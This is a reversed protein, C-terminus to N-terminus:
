IGLNTANIGPISALTAYGAATPTFVASSPVASQGVPNYEGDFFFFWKSHIIPGGITGGFRNSDFRPNTFIGQNALNYDVANLDRNQFYEYASGHLRNTGSMVVTNFQ